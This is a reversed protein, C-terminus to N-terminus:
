IYLNVTFFSLSRKNIESQNLHHLSRLVEQHIIVEIVEQNIVQQAQGMLLAPHVRQWLM